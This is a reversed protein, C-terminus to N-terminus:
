DLHMTKTGSPVFGCKVVGPLALYDQTCDYVKWRNCSAICSREYLPEPMQSTRALSNPRLAPHGAAAFATSLRQQWRMACCHANIPGRM